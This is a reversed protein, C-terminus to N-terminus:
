RARRSAEGPRRRWGAPAPSPLAATSASRWGDREEPTLEVFQLGAQELRARMEGDRQASRARQEATAQRAAALVAQQLDPALDAYWGQNAYLGRAGYLHATLTVYKTYRYVGYTWTNDLPNEQGDVRGDRLAAVLDAVDTLVPEAGLLRFARQHLENPQLRIKLGRLDAPSHVPHRANTLHRFGNEWYGLHKLNSSAELDAAMLQGEPGDLLAFAQERSTIEFLRDFVALRPSLHTLYSTSVYCGGLLGCDVMQILQQASYGFDLVNWFLDVAIRGASGQEVLEGFRKAAQSFLSDPPSYGGFRLHRPSAPPM